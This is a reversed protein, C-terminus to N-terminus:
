TTLFSLPSSRDICFRSVLYSFQLRADYARDLSYKDIEKRNYRILFGSFKDDRFQLLQLRHNKETYTCIKSEM